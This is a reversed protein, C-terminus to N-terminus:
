MLTNDDMVYVTINYINCVNNLEKHFDETNYTDSNAAQRITEYAEYIVETKSRIYYKELFLNNMLWCLLITGAMLGIFILALQRKISHTM